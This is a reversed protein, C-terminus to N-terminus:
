RKPRPLRWPRLVRRPDFPPLDPPEGGLMAVLAAGEESPTTAMAWAALDRAPVGLRLATGSISGASSGVIVDATRPDWGLDLELAAVDVTGGSDVGERWVPQHDRYLPILWQTIAAVNTPDIHLEITLRDPRHDSAEDLVVHRSTILFLRGDREFFFGTANTLQREASMTSVRTVALLLSEIM